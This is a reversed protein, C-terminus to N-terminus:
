HSLEDVFDEPDDTIEMSFLDSHLDRPAAGEKIMTCLKEINYTLNFTTDSMGLLDIGEFIALAWVFAMYTWFLSLCVVYTDNVALRLVVSLLLYAFTLVLFVGLSRMLDLVGELREGLYFSHVAFMGLFIALIGATIRKKGDKIEGSAQSILLNRERDSLHWAEEANKHLWDVKVYPTSESGCLCRLVTSVKRRLPYVESESLLRNCSSCYLPAWALENDNPSRREANEPAFALADQSLPKLKEIKNLCSKAKSKKLNAVTNYHDIAEAYKEDAELAQALEFSIAAQMDRSKSLGRTRKLAEKFDVVAGEFDCREVLQRAKELWSEISKKLESEDTFNTPVLAFETDSLTKGCSNCTTEWPQVAALCEPCQNM